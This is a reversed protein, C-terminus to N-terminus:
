IAEESSAIKVLLPVPEIRQLRKEGFRWNTTRRRMRGVTSAPPDLWQQCPELNVFCKLQNRFLLSYRLPHFRLLASCAITPEYVGLRWTKLSHIDLPTDPVAMTPQSSAVTQYFAVTPDIPFRFEARQVLTLCSIINTRWVSTAAPQWGSM